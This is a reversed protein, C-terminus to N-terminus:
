QATERAAIWRELAEPRVRIATGLRLSPIDGGAILSYALDRSCSLRSQVQKVTLLPHATESM